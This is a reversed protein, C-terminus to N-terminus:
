PPLELRPRPEAQGYSILWQGSSVLGQGLTQALLQLWNRQRPPVSVIRRSLNRARAHEVQTLVQHIYIEREM